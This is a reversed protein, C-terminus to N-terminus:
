EERFQSSIQELDFEGIFNFRDDTTLKASVKFTRHGQTNFFPLFWYILNQAPVNIYLDTELLTIEEPM